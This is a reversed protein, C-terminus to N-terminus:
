LFSLGWASLIIIFAIISFIGVVLLTGRKKSRSNFLKVKSKDIGLNKLVNETFKTDWGCNELNGIGIQKGSRDTVIVGGEYAYGGGAWEMRQDQTLPSIFFDGVPTNIFEFKTPYKSGDLHTYDLIRLQLEPISEQKGEPSLYQSLQKKPNFFKNQPLEKIGAAVTTIFSGDDFHFGFWSEFGYLGFGSDLFRFKIGLAYLFDCINQLKKTLPTGITGWEHDVGFSGELVVYDENKYKLTGSTNFFPATYYGYAIGNETDGMYGTGSQLVIPDKKILKFDIAIGKQEDKGIVRLTEFYNEDDQLSVLELNHTKIIFKKIKPNPLELTNNYNWVAAPKSQIHSKDKSVLSFHTELIMKQNGPEIRRFFFCFICSFYIPEGVHNGNTDGKVCKLYGGGMYWELALNEHTYHDKPFQLPIEETIRELGDASTKGIPGTGILCNVSIAQEPTINEQIANVLIERREGDMLKEVRSKMIESLKSMKM